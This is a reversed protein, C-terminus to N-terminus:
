FWRASDELDDLSIIFKSGEMRGKLKIPVCNGRGEEIKGVPYREGCARCILYGGRYEYGLKKPYCRGCADLFALTREGTRLIFFNIRRGKHEYTHFAPEGERLASTDVAVERGQVPASAYDPKGSCGQAWLALLILLSLAAKLPFGKRM